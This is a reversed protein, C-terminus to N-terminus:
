DKIKTNKARLILGTILSIILNLIIGYVLYAPAIRKFHDTNRDKVFAKFTEVTREQPNLSIYHELETDWHLQYYSQYYDPEILILFIADYITIVVTTIITIFVGIQLAQKITLSTNNARKFFFVTIINTIVITLLFLQLQNVFVEHVKDKELVSLAIRYIILIAGSITACKLALKYVNGKPIM